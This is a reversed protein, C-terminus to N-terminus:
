QLLMAVTEKAKARRNEPYSLESSSFSNFRILNVKRGRSTFKPNISWRFEEDLQVLGRKRCRFLASLILEEAVGLAKALSGATAPGSTQLRELIRDQLDTPERAKM